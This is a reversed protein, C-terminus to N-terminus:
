APPRGPGAAPPQQPGALFAATLLGLITGVLASFLNLPGFRWLHLGVWGGVTHGVAFSVWASVLYMALRGLSGGRVLHFALGVASAILFGYVVGPVTM